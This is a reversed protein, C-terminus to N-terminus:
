ESELVVRIKRRYKEATKEDGLEECVAILREMVETNSPSCKLATLYREKAEEPEDKGEYAIGLYYWLPWWVNFRGDEEYGGLIAIGRDYLGRMVANCGEEIKLPDDMRDLIGRVEARLEGGNDLKMFEDFAVKAKAYLGLNLYAYGLYYHGLEDDPNELTYIEFQELSEAKFNGVFEAGEEEGAEYADHCARAYSFRAEPLEPDIRMAARFWAAATTFDDKGAAAAGQNMVGKAFETGFHKKIYALYNEAYRFDPDCGIVFAMNKAITLTSVPGSFDATRFPIPVNKMFGEIKAKHLYEDSLEDFVFESLKPTLYETIRDTKKQEAM